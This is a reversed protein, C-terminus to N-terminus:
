EALGTVHLNGLCGAFSDEDSNDLCDKHADCTWSIPICVGSIRCRFQSGRDCDDADPVTTLAVASVNVFHLNFTCSM